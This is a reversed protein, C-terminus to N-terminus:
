REAGRVIKDTQDPVRIKETVDPAGVAQNNDSFLAGIKGSVLKQYRDGSVRYTAHSDQYGILDFLIGNDQHLCGPEWSWM